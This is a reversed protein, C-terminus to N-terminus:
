ATEMLPQGDAKDAVEKPKKVSRWEVFVAGIISLAAMALAVYYSQTIAKNLANTIEEASGGADAIGSSDGGTIGNLIDETDLGEMGGVIDSISSTVRNAFVSNAISIVIAAGISQGFVIVTTGLPVDEESLVTQAAIIPQQFSLGVGLGFLAPYVIRLAASTSPSFTSLLGAGVSMLVTGLIMFPAYYGVATVLGGSALVAVIVGLIMPLM